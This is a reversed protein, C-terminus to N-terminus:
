GERRQVLELLAGRTSLPHIWAVGQSEPDVIVRVGNAQANEIVAALDDVEIGIGYIGEGLPNDDNARGAMFQALPREPDTAELLEVADRGENGVRVSRLGWRDHWDNVGRTEEMGLLDAYVGMAEELDRVAHQFYAIREFM